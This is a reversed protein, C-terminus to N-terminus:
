RSPLDIFAAFWADRALICVSSLVSGRRSKGVNIRHSSAGNKAEHGSHSIRQCFRALSALIEDATKTWVFPKPRQNHIQIYDVIAAKLERTSRHVGRRIQKETLLAFWREVWNIWSAGTPTFHLHFRPHQALWRRMRPAKHTGYHDLILHAEFRAPVAADIPELIVADHAPLLEVLTGDRQGM